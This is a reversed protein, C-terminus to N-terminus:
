DRSRQNGAGTYVLTGFVNASGMGITGSAVTTPAGLSSSASGGSVKNLSSVNVVVNAGSNGGVGITSQGTYINAGSLTITGGSNATFNLGGTGSVPGSLTLPSSSVGNNRLNLNALLKFPGSLIVPTNADAAFNVGGALLNTWSNALTITAGGTGLIPAFTTGNINIPGAGFSNNNNFYTLTGSSNFVTGGSYTNNGLLQLTGGGASESVGGTGTIPANIVLNGGATFFGQVPLGGTLTASAVVNLNGSGAANITLTVGARWVDRRQRYAANNVTVTYPTTTSNFRAFVPTSLTSNAAWTTTPAATAATAWLMDDWSLNDSANIGYGPGTGNVHFWLDATANFSLM